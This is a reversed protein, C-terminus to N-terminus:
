TQMDTIAKVHGNGNKLVIEGLNVARGQPSVAWLVYTLYELGFKTADELTDFKADIEVRNNKSEVKAEGSAQQMLETGRFDIKAAEGSRRYNVAKTTRAVIGASNNAPAPAQQNQAFAGACFLVVLVLHKRM